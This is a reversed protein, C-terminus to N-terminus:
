KSTTLSMNTQFKSLRALLSPMFNVCIGRLIIEFVDDFCLYQEAMEKTEWLNVNKIKGDNTSYSTYKFFSPILVDELYKEDLGSIVGLLVDRKIENEDNSLEVDKIKEILNKFISTFLSSAKIAPIKMITINLDSITVNKKCFEEKFRNLEM